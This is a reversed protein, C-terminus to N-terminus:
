GSCASCGADFYRLATVQSCGRHLTFVEAGLQWLLRCTPLLIATRYFVTALFSFISALPHSALDSGPQAALVQLYNSAPVLFCPSAHWCSIDTVFGLLRCLSVSLCSFQRQELYSVAKWRKARTQFSEFDVCHCRCVSQKNRM